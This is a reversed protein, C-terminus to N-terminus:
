IEIISMFSVVPRFESPTTHDSSYEFMTWKHTYAIYPLHLFKHPALTNTYRHLYTCACVYVSHQLPSILRVSMVIKVVQGVHNVIYMCATSCPLDFELCQAEFCSFLQVMFCSFLYVPCSGGWYHKSHDCTQDGNPDKHVDYYIACIIMVAWSIQPSQHWLTQKCIYTCACVCM